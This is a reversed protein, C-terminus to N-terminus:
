VPFIGQFRCAKRPLMVLRCKLCGTCPQMNLTQIRVVDVVKHTSNITSKIESPLTSAIGKKRPSANIILVDMIREGEIHRRKYKMPISQILRLLKGIFHLKGKPAQGHGFLRM